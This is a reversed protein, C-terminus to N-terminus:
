EAIEHTLEDLDFVLDLVGASVVVAGDAVEVIGDFAEGGIENSLGERKPGGIEKLDGIGAFADRGVECRGEVRLGLCGIM